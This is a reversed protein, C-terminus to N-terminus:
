EIKEVFLVISDHMMDVRVLVLTGVGINNLNYFQELGNRFVIKNISGHYITYEGPIPDHVIRSAYLSAGRSPFKYGQVIKSSM